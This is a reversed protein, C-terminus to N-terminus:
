HAFSGRTWTNYASKEFFTPFNRRAVTHVHQGAIFIPNLLKRALTVSHEESIEIMKNAIEQRAEQFNRLVEANLVDAERIMKALVAADELALNMGQGMFPSMSHAADGILVTSDGIHWPDVKLRTIKNVKSVEYEHRDKERFLYNLRLTGDLMPLGCIVSNRRPWVHLYEREALSVSRDTIVEAYRWESPLFEVKVLGRDVLIGRAVSHIGDSGIFLDFDTSWEGAPSKLRAEKTFPDFDVLEHGFHFTVGPTAQAEEILILHLDMRSISHLCDESFAGYPSPLPFPLYPLHVLRGKLPLAFEMVKELLGARRLSQRGRESLTFNSTRGQATFNGSNLVRKEIVHVEHGDRGFLLAAFSGAIGGGTILIRLKKM